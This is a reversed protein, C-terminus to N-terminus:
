GSVRAAMGAAPPVWTARWACAMVAYAFGADEAGKAFRVLDSAPHEESSLMSGLTVL